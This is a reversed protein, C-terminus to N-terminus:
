LQLADLAADLAAEQAQLLTHLVDGAIRVDIYPRSNREGIM